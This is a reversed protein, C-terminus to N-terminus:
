LNILEIKWSKELYHHETRFADIDGGNFDNLKSLKNNLENFDKKLDNIVPEEEQEYVYHNETSDKPGEGKFQEIKDEDKDVKRAHKLISKIDKITEHQATRHKKDDISDEIKTLHSEADSIKKAIRNLAKLNEKQM